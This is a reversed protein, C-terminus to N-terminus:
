RVTKKTNKDVIIAIAGILSEFGITLLMAYFSHETFQGANAFIHITLVNVLIATLYVFALELYRVKRGRKPKALNIYFLLNVLHSLVFGALTGFMTGLHVINGEFSSIAVYCLVQALFAITIAILTKKDDTNKTIVNALYLTIPYFIVGVPFLYDLFTFKLGSLLVNVIVIAIIWATNIYFLKEEKRM